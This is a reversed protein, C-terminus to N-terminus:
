SIQPTPIYAGKARPSWTCLHYRRQHRIYIALDLKRSNPAVIKTEKHLSPSTKAQPTLMTPGVDIPKRQPQRMNIDAWPLYKEGIIYIYIYYLYYLIYIHIYIIYYM